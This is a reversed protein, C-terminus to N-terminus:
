RGTDITEKTTYVHCLVLGVLSLSTAVAAVNWRLAFPLASVVTRSTLILQSLNVTLSYVISCWFAWSGGWFLRGLFVYCDFSHTFTRPESFALWSSELTRSDHFIFSFHIFTLARPM